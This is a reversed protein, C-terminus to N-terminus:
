KKNCVLLSSSMPKPAIILATLERPFVLNGWQALFLAVCVCPHINLIELTPPFFTYQLPPLMIFHSFQSDLVLRKEFYNPGWLLITKWQGCLKLVKLLINDRMFVGWEWIWHQSWQNLPAYLCLLHTDHRYLLFIVRIWEKVGRVIITPQIGRELAPFLLWYGPM